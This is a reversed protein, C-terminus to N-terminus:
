KKTRNTRAAHTSKGLFVLTLSRLKKKRKKTGTRSFVFINLTKIKTSLFLPFFACTEICFGGCVIRTVCGCSLFSLSLCRSSIIARRGGPFRETEVRKKQVVVAQASLCLDVTARQQYKDRAMLLLSVNESYFLSLLSPSIHPRRSRSRRRASRAGGGGRGRRSPSSRRRRRRTTTRRRRKRRRRERRGDRSFISRRRRRKLIM